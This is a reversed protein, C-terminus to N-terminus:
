PYQTVWVRAAGGGVPEQAFVVFSVQGNGAVDHEGAVVEGAGEGGDIPEAVSWGAGASFRRVWLDVHAAGVRSYVAFAESGSFDVSAPVATGEPTADLVVPDQFPQGAPAFGAMLDVQAGSHEQWLALADAQPSLGLLPASAQRAARQPTLVEVQPALWALDPDRRRGVLRAGAGAGQLWLALDVTNGVEAVALAAAAVGPDIREPAQFNGFLLWKAGHIETPSSRQEWVVVARTGWGDLRVHGVAGTSTTDLMLANGFTTLAPSRWTAWVHGAQVWAAIPVQEAFIVVPETAPASSTELLAPAEWVDTFLVHRSAWVSPVGGDDQLWVLVAEGTRSVALSYASVAGTGGDVRRPAEWLGGTLRSTFLHAAGGEVQLWAVRPIGASSSGISPRSVAGAGTDVRLPVSWDKARTTFTVRAPTLMRGTGDRLGQVVVAHQAARALVLDPTFTVQTRTADLSTSGVLAAGDPGSLVVAGEVLGGAAVPASLTATIVGRISVESAGDDPQLKVVRFGRLEAVPVCLGLSCGRGSPCSGADGCALREPLAPQYCASSTLALAAGLGCMRSARRMARQSDGM